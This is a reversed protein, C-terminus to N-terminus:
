NKREVFSLVARWTERLLGKRPRLEQAENYNVQQKFAPRAMRTNPQTSKCLFFESKVYCGWKQFLISFLLYQQIGLLFAKCILSFKLQYM